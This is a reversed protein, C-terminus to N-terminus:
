GVSCLSGSSFMSISYKESFRGGKEKNIICFFLNSGFYLAISM